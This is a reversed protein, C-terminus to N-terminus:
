PLPAALAKGIETQREQLYSMLEEKLHRELVRNILDPCNVGLREAYELREETKPKLRFYRPQGVKPKSM